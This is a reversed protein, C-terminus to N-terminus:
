VENAGGVPRHPERSVGTADPRGAHPLRFMSQWIAVMGIKVVGAVVLLMGTLAIVPGFDFVVAAATLLAGLGTMGVSILRAM